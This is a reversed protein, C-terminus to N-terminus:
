KGNGITGNDAAAYFATLGVPTIVPPCALSPQVTFLGVLLLILFRM